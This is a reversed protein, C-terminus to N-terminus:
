KMFGLLQLKTAMNKSVLAYGQANPHIQDSKLTTDSLVDSFVDAILPTATEKARLNPHIPKIFGLV